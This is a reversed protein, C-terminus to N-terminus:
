LGYVRQPLNQFLTGVPSHSNEFADVVQTLKLDPKILHLLYKIWFHWILWEVQFERERRALHKKFRGRYHASSLHLLGSCSYYNLSTRIPHPCVPYNKEQIPWFITSLEFVLHVIKTLIKNLKNDLNWVNRYVTLVQTLCKVNLNRPQWQLLKFIIDPVTHDNSQRKTIM